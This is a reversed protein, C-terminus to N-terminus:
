YTGKFGTGKRAAGNKGSGKVAKGGSGLPQTNKVKCKM